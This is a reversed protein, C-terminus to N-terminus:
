LPRHGSRKILLERNKKKKGSRIMKHLINIDVANDHAQEYLLWFDEAGILRNTRELPPKEMEIRKRNGLPLQLFRVGLMNSSGQPEFGTQEM